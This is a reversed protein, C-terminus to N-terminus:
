GPGPTKRIASAPLGYANGIRTAPLKGTEILQLVRQRTVGLLTAAETVSVLEPVPQCGSRRDRLAEPLARIALPETLQSVIALGTACAQNLNEAPVTIVIVLAGSPSGTVVGHWAILQSVWADASKPDRVTTEVELVYHETMSNSEATAVVPQWTKRSM